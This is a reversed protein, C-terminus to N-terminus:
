TGLSNCATDGTVAEATVARSAGTSDACWYTGNPDKATMVWITATSVCAASTDSKKLNDLMPKTGTASTCLNTYGITTGNNHYFLEAQLRSAALQSKVASSKGKNRASNLASLVISSLLAIISIVVLLEILTFGRSYKKM